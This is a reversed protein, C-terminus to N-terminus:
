VMSNGSATREPIAQQVDWHEVIMANDVRFIDAVATSIELTEWTAHVVVMDDEAIVRSVSVHLNPDSVYDGLAEVFNQKGNEVNPNHQVYQESSIYSDAARALDKKVFAETYFDHVIERSEPEIRENKTHSVPSTEERKKEETATCSSIGLGITAM